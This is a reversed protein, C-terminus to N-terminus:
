FVEQAKAVAAAVQAESVTVQAKFVGGAGNSVTSDVRAPADLGLLRAKRAMIALCSNVAVLDGAIANQYPKSFMGDLRELELKLVAEAPERIIRALASEVAAQAGQPGAYGLAQAIQAYSYGMKRYELAQAQKEEVAKIRRPSTASEGRSKKKTTSARKKAREAKLKAELEKIKAQAEAVPDAPEPTTDTM